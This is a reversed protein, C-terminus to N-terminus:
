TYSSKKELVLMISLCCKLIHQLQHEIRFDVTIVGLIVALEVLKLSSDQSRHIVSSKITDYSLM